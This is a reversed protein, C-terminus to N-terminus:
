KRVKASTHDAMFNRSMIEEEVRGGIWDRIRETATRGFLNHMYMSVRRSGGAPRQSQEKKYMIIVM